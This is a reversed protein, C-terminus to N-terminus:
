EKAATKKTYMKSHFAAHFCIENLFQKSFLKPHCLTVTTFCLLWPKSSFLTYGFHDTIYCPTIKLFFVIERHVLLIKCLYIHYKCKQEKLDSTKRNFNLTFHRSYNDRTSYIGEWCLSEDHEQPKKESAKNLEDRGTIERMDRQAAAAEDVELLKSVLLAVIGGIAVLVTSRLIDKGSLM